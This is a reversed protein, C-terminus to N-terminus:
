DWGDLKVAVLWSVPVRRFGDGDPLAVAAEPGNMTLLGADAVRVVGVTPGEPRWLTPLNVVVDGEVIEGVPKVRDVVLWSVTSDSLM